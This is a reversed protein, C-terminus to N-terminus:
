EPTKEILQNYREAALNTIGAVNVQESGITYSKQYMEKADTIEGKQEALLGLNLYTQANETDLELTVDLTDQAEELQGNAILAWAHLNLTYADKPNSQLMSKTMDLASEPRNLQELAIQLAPAFKRPNSNENLLEEYLEFARDYNKYKSQLEVLKWRIAEEFAFRNSLSKEFYLIAEQEQKAELLALALFYQTEPRISDFEYAQRLDAIANKTDGMMMNSYGRFIWADIYDFQEKISINAMERALPYEESESLAKSLMAFLHPEKGDSLTDFTDYVGLVRGGKNIVQPNADPMGVLAIMTEQAGVHNNQLAQLVGKYWLLEPLVDPTTSDYENLIEMAISLENRLILSRVSLYLALPDEPFVQSVNKSLADLKSAANTMVYIDGLMSYAQKENPYDRVVNQADIMAITMRKTDIAAEIRDIREDFSAEKFVKPMNKRLVQAQLDQPAVETAGPSQQMLYWGGGGLISVALLGVPLVASRKSSSSSSTM